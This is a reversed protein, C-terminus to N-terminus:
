PSTKRLKLYLCGDVLKQGELEYVNSPLELLRRFRGYPLELRHITGHQAELPLPRVGHVDLWNARLSVKVDNADVGPLAVVAWVHEGTEYIDAPPQWARMTRAGPEFFGRQVREVRELMELAQSWMRDELRSRTM